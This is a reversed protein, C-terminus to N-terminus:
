DFLRPVSEDIQKPEPLRSAFRRRVRKKPAFSKAASAHVDDMRSSLTVHIKLAKEVIAAIGVVVAFFGSVITSALAWRETQADGVCQFLVVSLILICFLPLAVYLCM